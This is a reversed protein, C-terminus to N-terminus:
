CVHWRWRSRKWRTRPSCCYLRGANGSTVGPCIPPRRSLLNFPVAWILRNLPQMRRWLALAETLKGAQYLDYLRVTEKPMANAGGSFCGVSGAMLGYLNLYDCGNFVNAGSAALEELRLMNATSDKIFKVTDIERLRAFVKPTIDFGTYQPINYVMIPIEVAKGIQEFHWRM